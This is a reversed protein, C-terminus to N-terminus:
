SFRSRFFPFFIRFPVVMFFVVRSSHCRSYKISSAGYPLFLLLQIMKAYNFFFFSRFGSYLCNRQACAVDVFSRNPSSRALNVLSKFSVLLIACPFQWMVESSCGFKGVLAFRKQALTGIIIWTRMVKLLGMLSLLATPIIFVFSVQEFALLFLVVSNLLALPFTLRYFSHLIQESHPINM